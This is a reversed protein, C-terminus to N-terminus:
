KIPILKLTAAPAGAIEINGNSNQFIVGEEIATQEFSLTYQKKPGVIKYKAAAFVSHLM